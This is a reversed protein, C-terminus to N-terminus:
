KASGGAKSQAPPPAIREKLEKDSLISNENLVAAIIATDQILLGIKGIISNNLCFSNKCSSEFMLTGIAGIGEIINQSAAGNYISINALEEESLKTFDYIELLQGIDM